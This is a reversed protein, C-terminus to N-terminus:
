QQFAIRKGLLNQVERLISLELRKTLVKFRFEHGRVAFFVFSVSLEYSADDRSSYIVQVQGAHM